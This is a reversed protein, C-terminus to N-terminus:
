KEVLSNYDTRNAQYEFMADIASAAGDIKMEREVRKPMIRGINDQRFSCNKFTWFTVPNADYIVYKQRMNEGLNKMPNSLAKADQFVNDLIGKGFLDDHRKIYAKAFRNDYGVHFPLLGLEEFLQFQYDAVLATDIDVDEVITIFGQESWERYKAGAKEDNKGPELKGAPIWFHQHMYFFQDKKFLATFACLDTTEALDVGGLYFWGRFDELSFKTDNRIESADLWSEANTQKVDFDKCFMWARKVSDTKAEAIEDRLFQWKKSVGLNPNSKIWSREDRWVEEESDQTYLFFLSRIDETEGKLTKKGQAVKKDLHGNEVKGESSIELMLYEDKSSGSQDLPQIMSEDEMEHSEDVIALDINRGEKGKKRASLKKIQAKNQSTFKGHHRKQKRNGFYIGTNNRRTVKELSVSQDRMDDIENFVIDASEYDNSACFINTGMNGCFFETLGLAAAFTSKGNKRPIFLLCYKFRRIWHGESEMKFGYTAEIIAKQWLELIFPDGAYPSKSHKVKTEIFLIRKRPEALDFRFRPDNMDDILNQLQMKIWCNAPIEGSMVKEHYEALFSHNENYSIASATM